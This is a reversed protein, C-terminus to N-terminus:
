EPSVAAVKQAIIAAPYVSGLFCSMLAILVIQFAQMPQLFPALTFSGWMWRVGTATVQTGVVGLAIGLLSGLIALTISYSIILSITANKRAGLTKLMYLEYKAENIARVAVIYSSAAIVIYVSISWVNIFNATQSNISQVFTQVQQVQTIKTDSPLAQTINAITESKTSPDKLSFQIFSITSSNQTLTQLTILPMILETDSQEDTQTVGAALLQIPQNNIALALTDNLKVSALNALIIGVDTQSEGQSISGNVRANSTRLFDELNSIGLVNVKYTGNKTTLTGQVIKQGTAYNVNPNNQIQNILSADIQSDSLSTSNKSTLLYTQGITSLEGVITAQSNINNVLSNISTLLAILLAIAIVASITGKKRLLM